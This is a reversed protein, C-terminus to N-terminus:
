NRKIDIMLTFFEGNIKILEKKFSLQSTEHTRFLEFTLNYGRYKKHPVSTFQSQSKVFEVATHDSERKSYYIGKLNDRFQLLIKSKGHIKTEIDGVIISSTLFNNIRNISRNLFKLLSLYKGRFFIKQKVELIKRMIFEDHNNESSDRKEREALIIDNIDQERLKFPTNINRWKLHHSFKNRKVLKFCRPTFKLLRLLIRELILLFVANLFGYDKTQFESINFDRSFENNLERIDYIEHFLRNRLYNVKKIILFDDETLKLHINKCLGKIKELIPPNNYFAVNDKWDKLSILPFELDEESIHKIHKKIIKTIQRAKEKKLVRTKEKIKWFINTIHELTNWNAMFEIMINQSRIRGVLHEEIFPLYVNNKELRVLLIPFSKEVDRRSIFQLLEPIDSAEEHFIPIKIMRHFKYFTSKKEFIFVTKIFFFERFLMSFLSLVFRFHNKIIELTEEAQLSSDFTIETAFLTSKATNVDLRETHSIGNYNENTKNLHLKKLNENFKKLTEIIDSPYIYFDNKFDTLKISYSYPVQLKPVEAIVIYTKL